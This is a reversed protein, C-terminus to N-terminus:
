PLSVKTTGGRLEVRKMMYGGEYLSSRPNAQWVVPASVFYNGDPVREFTFNGQGDCRTRRIASNYGPATSDFKPMAEVRISGKEASGYIAFMRERTYASDPALGAELGACTRAEGGVTRLVAFGTLTNSGDKRSWEVESPEFTSHVRVEQKQTTCGTLMGCVILGVVVYRM